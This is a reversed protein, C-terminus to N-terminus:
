YMSSTRNSILSAYIQIGDKSLKISKSEKKTNTSDVPALELIQERFLEEILHNYVLMFLVLTKIESLRGLSLNVCLNNIYHQKIHKRPGKDINGIVLILDDKIEKYLDKLDELKHKM